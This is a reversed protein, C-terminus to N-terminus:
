ARAGRAAGPDRHNKATEPEVDVLLLNQSPTLRMGPQFREMCRAASRSELPRRGRDAIRGALVHLGLFWRGDRQQHWGFLDGQRSFAFPRAPELQWGLRRELEERFWDAGKEELVYKLRAHKRNTRDGFDRHVTVVGKAVEILKDPPFFGIVDALRPFTQANGHSMGLGGGALLNYGLLHDGEGVAVFGLCNTFV